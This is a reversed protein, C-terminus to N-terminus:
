LIKWLSIKRQLIRQENVFKAFNLWVNWSHGKRIHRWFKQSDKLISIKSTYNLNQCVHLDFKILTYFWRSYFKNADDIKNKYLREIKKKEKWLLLKKIKSATKLPSLMHSNIYFHIKATSTAQFINYWNISFYFFLKWLKELYHM